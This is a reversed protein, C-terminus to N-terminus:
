KPSDPDPIQLHHGLMTEGQFLFRGVFPTGKLVLPIWLYDDAWMRHYPIADVPSWLPKAEDSETPKGRFGNARFVTVHLAYGDSFQFLLEGQEVLNTPTIALEEQVERLACEKLSEGPELRGGPGTIKGKGLGRKKHILLIQGEHIVFM